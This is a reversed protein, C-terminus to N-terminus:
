PCPISCITESYEQGAYAKLAHLLEMLGIVGDPTCPMLDVAERYVQSYDEQFGSIILMVDTINVATDNNVDAWAFTTLEIPDSLETGNDLYVTYTAGPIIEEGHAFVGVWAAPTQFLPMEGLTGDAQTYLSICSVDPDDQDGVVLLAVPDDGNPPRITLYRCGLTAACFESCDHHLIGQVEDCWDFTCPDRDDILEPGTAPNCCYGESTVDINICGECPECLGADWEAFTCCEDFTCANNDDCHSDERCEGCGYPYGGSDCKEGPSFEPAGPLVECMCENVGDTCKTTGLGIDYCCRGGEVVIYAPNRALPVLPEALDDSLQNYLPNPSLSIVWTGASDAGVEFPYQAMYKPTGDDATATLAGM